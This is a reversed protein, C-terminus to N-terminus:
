FELENEEHDSVIVFYDEEGFVVSDEGEEEEEDDTEGDTEVTDAHTESALEWTVWPGLNMM